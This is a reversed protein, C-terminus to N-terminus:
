NNEGDGVIIQATYNNPFTEIRVRLRIVIGTAISLTVLLLKYIKSILFFQIIIMIILLKINVMLLLILFSCFFKAYQEYSCIGKIILNM